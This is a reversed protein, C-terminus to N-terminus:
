TTEESHVLVEGNSIVGRWGCHNSLTGIPSLTITELNEYHLIDWRAPSGDLNHAGQNDEVGRNNFTIEVYHSFLEDNHCVPCKFIMGQAEEMSNAKNKYEIGKVVQVGHSFANENHIVYKIFHPDLDVLKM